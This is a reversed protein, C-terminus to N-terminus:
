EARNSKNKDQELKRELIKLVPILELSNENLAVPWQVYTGSVHSV